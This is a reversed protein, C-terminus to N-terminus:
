YKKVLYKVKFVKNQSFNSTSFVKKSYKTAVNFVIYEYLVIM